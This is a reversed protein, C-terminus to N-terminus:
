RINALQTCMAQLQEDTQIGSMLSRVEAQLATHVTRQGITRVPPPPTVHTANRAIAASSVPNAILATPLSAAPYRITHSTHKRHTVVETTKTDLDPKQYWSFVILAQSHALSSTRPIRTWAVFYHCCVVGLNTGMCCDCLYWGDPFLAIIHVVSTATHTIRLLHSPTVGQERVLCLLFRTGIYARDNTFNN